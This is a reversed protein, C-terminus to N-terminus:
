EKVLGIKENDHGGEKNVMVRVWDLEYEVEGRGGFCEFNVLFDEVLGVKGCM